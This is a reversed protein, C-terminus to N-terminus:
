TTGTAPSPVTEPDPFVDNFLKDTAIKAAERLKQREGPDKTEAYLKAYVGLQGTSLVGITVREVADAKVGFRAAFPTIILTMIGTLTLGSAAFLNTFLTIAGGTGPMSGARAPASLHEFVVALVAALVLSVFAVSFGIVYIKKKSM